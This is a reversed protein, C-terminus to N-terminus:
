LASHGDHDGIIVLQDAAAHSSQEVPDRADLDDGLSPIERERGLVESRM